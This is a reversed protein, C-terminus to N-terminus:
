SPEEYEPLENIFIQSIEQIKDHSAKMLEVPDLIKIEPAYKMITPVIDKFERHVSKTKYIIYDRNTESPYIKTWHKYIGARDINNTLNKHILLHVDKPKDEWTIYGNLAYKLIDVASSFDYDIDENLREASKIKNVSYTKMICVNEENKTKPEIKKEEYGVLYWYYEKSFIQCPQVVRTYNSFVFSIKKNADIANNITQITIRMPTSIKEKNETSESFIRNSYDMVIREKIEKLDDPNNEAKNLIDVLAILENASIGLIKLFGARKILWVGHENRLSEKLFYKKMGNLYNKITRPGPKRNKYKNLEIKDGRNLREIIDLMTDLYQM